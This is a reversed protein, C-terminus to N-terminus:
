ITVYGRLVIRVQKTDETGEPVYGSKVNVMVTVEVWQGVDDVAKKNGITDVFEEPPTFTFTIKSQQNESVSGKDGALQFYQAGEQEQDFVCEFATAGGKKEKDTIGCTGVIVEKVLPEESSSPKPFTLRILQESPATAELDLSPPLAFADEVMEPAEMSLNDGPLAPLVYGQRGWCRSKLTMTHEQEQNPVDIVFMTVYERPREHDACFSAQIVAKEGPPITGEAPTCMFPEINTFCTHSKEKPKIHYDLPFVSTNQLTFEKTLKEGALAHGLDLVGEDPDVSLSPSVGQGVLAVSAKGSTSFLVLTECFHLNANPNYRVQLDRYGRPPIPRLANIISYAGTPNLGQMNLPVEKDSNNRVRLVVVAVKGVALQGFDIRRKDVILEREVVTTRCEMMMLPEQVPGNGKATVTRCFCPVSWVSHKSWKEPELAPAGEHMKRKNTEVDVETYPLLDDRGKIDSILVKGESEKIDPATDTDVAAAAVEVEAPADEEGDVAEAPEDGDPADCGEASPAPATLWAPLAKSTPYFSFQVRVTQGPQVTDTVPSVKLFSQKPQPVAFEYQQAVKGENKIFVNQDCRDHPSTAGFDIVTHSIRLPPVEGTGTCPVIFERNLTTRLNLNFNYSVASKPAFIVNQVLTEGPLITGFGDNPQVSVESPLKVFGYKQPLASNNTMRVPVTNGQTIYCTKFDIKGFPTISDLGAKVLQRRADDGELDINAPPPNIYLERPINFSIDSTTLQARLTFYVPLTQDPVFVEVPVAIVGAAEGQMDGTPGLTMAHKGCRQLLGPMPRFKIQVEFEGDIGEHGNRGQVFGLTPNFEVSSGCDSEISADFQKPMEALMKLAVAGRNCLLVRSRYLKNYVCCKFDLIPEAIYIPVKLAHAKVNLKIDECKPDSFKMVLPMQLVGPYHPKFVVKVAKQSYPEIVGKKQFTIPEGEKTGEAKATVIAAAHMLEFESEPRKGSGELEDDSEEDSSSSSSSSDGGDAKEKKEKKKKKSKDNKYKRLPELTFEAPLAGDNRVILDYTQSDGLVVNEFPILQTAVSPVTKKCTCVLPVFFPGTSALFPLEVIIDKNVKPHFTINIACTMGASMRGPKTYMIEFFDKVEDPLSQIKFSNFSFTVNTLVIRRTERRDVEFDKFLITAPESLFPQGEFRKGWVIQDQTINMKQRQRAQALYVQELKSRKPVGFGKKQQGEAEKAAKAEEDEDDLDPLEEEEDDDFLADAGPPTAEPELMADEGTVEEEGDSDAITKKPVFRPDSTVKGNGRKAQIKQIIRLRDEPKDMARISKGLGFSHDKITTVQSPDIRLSRGTPDVMEVNGRTRSVLHNKVKTETAARGQEKQFAQDFEAHQRAVKEKKRAGEDEVIMNAAIRNMEEKRLAIRNVRKKEVKEDIARRRFVEHPNEGQQLIDNFEKKNARELALRKVELKHNVGRLLAAAQDTNAKLELMADTRDQWQEQEVKKMLVDAEQKTKTTAQVKIKADKYNSITQKTQKAQLERAKQTIEQQKTMRAEQAMKLKGADKQEKRSRKIATAKATRQELRNDKVVSKAMGKDKYAALDASDRQREALELMKKEREAIESQMQFNELAVQSQGELEVLEEIMAKPPHHHKKSEGDLARFREEVAYYDGELDRAKLDERQWQEKAGVAVKAKKALDVRRTEIARQNAIRQRDNQREPKGKNIGVVGGPRVHQTLLEKSTPEVEYLDETEDSAYGREDMGYDRAGSGQEYDMAV